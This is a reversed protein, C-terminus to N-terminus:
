APGRWGSARSCRTSGSRSRGCRRRTRTSRRSPRSSSSRSSSYVAPVVLLAPPHMEAYCGLQRLPGRGSRALHDAALGRALAASTLLALVVFQALGGLTRSLVKRLWAAVAAPERARLRDFGVCARLLTQQAVDSPDLKGRLRATPHVAAPGRLYPRFPDLVRGADPNVPM